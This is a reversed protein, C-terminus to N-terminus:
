KSIKITVPKESKLNLWVIQFPIGNTDRSIGLQCNEDVSMQKGDVEVTAHKLEKWDYIVFAPNVIPSSTSGDVIFSISNSKLAFEFAKQDKSFGLSEGGKLNIVAPPNQWYKALPVISEIPQKTFGYQVVSGFRPTDDNAGLAFHTVRDYDVAFRGDSPVLHTPWHNWPGAFPDDTYKSQENEGWPTINGGQFITFIKYKSKSNLLEITANEITIKPIHNPLSWTLKEVEGNTNAVTMAQMDVVDLPTQGPNTFFQIDEFGPTDYGKNWEVKRIGTGDPYLTHYEDTWNLKDTCLYSVDVCPYRWHIVVRAPTNEIIEAFCHRIQKDAMHESCGHASFIESSQDSMWQNEETIWNAAYNTGRWYVVSTPLGKFKVVIDPYDTLRFMKDWLESFKLKTYYAGFKNSEGVEGPLVAKQIPSTQDDPKFAYYISKIEKESLSSSYINLEDLVGQIGLVFLLNQENTRVFDTCREKESNIGITIPVKPIVFSGSYKKTVNINGDIYLSIESKNVVAAVSHWKYLSVKIDSKVVVGNIRLFLFGYPDIGFYYGQEGFNISQQIIPSENYPYVDLALWSSITFSSNIEPINQDIKLGTYYGDFALATGSVGKKYDIMMGQISSELESNSEVASGNFEKLIDDFKWSLFPEPLEKDNIVPRSEINNLLLDNSIKGRFVKGHDIGNDLLKITQKTILDPNIWQHFKTDKAEKVNREITGDPHITFTEYVVGLIGDKTLADLEQNAKEIVKIDPFYRWEVVIKDDSNEILRVYNYEFQYDKDRGPYLDDILYKGTPTKWLPQYGTNRTFELQKDKGLVVILDAYKGFYDTASNQVKTYYAYFNTSAFSQFCCGLLCFISFILFKNLKM